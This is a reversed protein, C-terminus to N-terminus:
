EPSLRLKLRFGCSRVNTKRVFRDYAADNMKHRPYRVIKDFVRRIEAYKGVGGNTEMNSIDSGDFVIDSEDRVDEGRRILPTFTKPSDQALTLIDGSAIRCQYAYIGQQPPPLAM